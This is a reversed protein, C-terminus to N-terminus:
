KGGMGSHALGPFTIEELENKKYKELALLECIMSLIMCSDYVDDFIQKWFFLSWTKLFSFIVWDFM